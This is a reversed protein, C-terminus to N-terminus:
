AEECELVRPPSGVEGCLTGSPGVLPEWAFPVVWTTWLGGLVHSETPWAMRPTDPCQPFPSVFCSSPFSFTATESQIFTFHTSCSSVKDNDNVLNRETERERARRKTRERPLRKRPTRCGHHTCSFRSSLQPFCISPGPSAVIVCLLWSLFVRFPPFGTPRPTKEDM